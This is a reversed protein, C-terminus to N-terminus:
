DAGGVGGRGDGCDVSGGDGERFIASMLFGLFVGMNKKGRALKEYIKKEKDEMWGEEGLAVKALKFVDKLTLATDQIYM